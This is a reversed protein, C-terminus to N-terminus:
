PVKEALGPQKLEGFPMYPVFGILGREGADDAGNM